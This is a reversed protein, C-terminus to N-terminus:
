LMVTPGTSLILILRELEVHLFRHGQPEHFLTVV